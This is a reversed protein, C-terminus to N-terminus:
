WDKDNQGFLVKKNYCSYKDDAEKQSEGDLMGCSFCRKRLHKNIGFIRKDVEYSCGHILIFFENFAFYSKPSYLGYEMEWEAYDNYILTDIKRVDDLSKM